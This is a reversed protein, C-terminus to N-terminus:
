GHGVEQAAAAIAEAAGATARRPLMNAVAFPFPLEDMFEAMEFGLTEEQRAFEEPGEVKMWGRGTGRQRQWRQVVRRTASGMVVNAVMLVQDHTIHLTATAHSDAMAQLYGAQAPTTAEGGPGTGSVQPRATAAKVTQEQM